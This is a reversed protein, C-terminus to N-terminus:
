LSNIYELLNKYIPNQALIYENGLLFLQQRARTIAVNLKRDVTKDSNLNCFFGLQYPKNMCFSLIIIERQSGQYREVTDIM